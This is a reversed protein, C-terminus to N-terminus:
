EEQITLQLMGLYRYINSTMVADEQMRTMAARQQSAEKRSDARRQGARGQPTTEREASNSPDCQSALTVAGERHGMPWRGLLLRWWRLLLLLDSHRRAATAILMEMSVSSAANWVSCVDPLRCVGSLAARLACFRWIRLSHRWGTSM